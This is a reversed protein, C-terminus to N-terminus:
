AQLPTPCQCFSIFASTTLFYPHVVILKARTDAENM